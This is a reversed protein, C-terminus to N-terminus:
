EMKFEEHCDKELEQDEYNTYREYCRRGTESKIKWKVQFIITEM